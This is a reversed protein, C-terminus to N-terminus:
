VGGTLRAAIDELQELTAYSVRLDGRGDRDRIRVELGLAEEIQRELAAVNPDKRPAQRRGGRRGAGAKVLRETDRVNLGDAAVRRALASPDEAQLLIIGHGASITGREIMARVEAPLGLLRVRNAVHPRSKGVSDAAEEQTLGFGEILRFYGQAEEMPNLDSRQVNEIVAVAAAEQDGTERVVVPVEHVGAKQAARWRREGALIQFRGGGDPHPRALLPQLVGAERISDALQGLEQANFERRPQFPNPDLSSVPVTRSGSRIAAETPLGAAAEAM